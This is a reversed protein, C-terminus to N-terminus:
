WAGFTGALKAKYSINIFAHLCPSLFSISLDIRLNSDAPSLMTVAWLLGLVSEVRDLIKGMGIAVYDLVPMRGSDVM